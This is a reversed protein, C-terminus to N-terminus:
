HINQYATIGGAIAGLFASLAFAIVKAATTNVGMSRAAEQDERIALWAYGLKSRALAWTLLAAAVVVGLSVYFFLEGSPGMPLDIGTSGETLSDWSDAIERFAEAVGLTAIAFYHGKLRLVALGILAAVAAAILSGALLAPA